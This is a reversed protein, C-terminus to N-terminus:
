CGFEQECDILTTAAWGSKRYLFLSVLKMFIGSFPFILCIKIRYYQCSIITNHYEYLIGVLGLM